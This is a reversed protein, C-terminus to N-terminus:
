DFITDATEQQDIAAPKRTALLLAAGVAGPTQNLFVVAGDMHKRIESRLLEVYSPQKEFLGGVLGISPSELELRQSVIGIQGALKEVGLRIVDAAGADGRSAAEFLCPALSALETKNGRQMLWPVLEPLSNIGSQHLVIQGLIPPKQTRDFEDYVYVLGRRVLDYSSGADSFLHEWGGAKEWRGNRQGLVNSGTGAIVIIGPKAGHAGAYASRSDEEVVIEECEPWIRELIRRVRSQDAPSWCGALAAGIGHVPGTCGRISYFVSELHKEPAHQCNSAGTRGSRIVHGSDDCLAWTTKTGGGEIGLVTRDHTTAARRQEPEFNQM